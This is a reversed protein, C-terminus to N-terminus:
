FGLAPLVEDGLVQQLLPVDVSGPSMLYMRDGDTTGRYPENSPLAMTDVRVVV